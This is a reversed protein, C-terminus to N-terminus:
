RTARGLMDIDTNEHVTLDDEKFTDRGFQPRGSRALVLLAFKVGVVLYQTEWCGM